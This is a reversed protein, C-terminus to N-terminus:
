AEVQLYKESNNNRKTNIITQTTLSFPIGRTVLGQCHRRQGNKGRSHHPLNICGYHPLNISYWSVGSHSLISTRQNDSNM